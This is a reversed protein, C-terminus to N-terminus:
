PSKKHLDRPFPPLTKHAPDIARRARAGGKGLNIRNTLKLSVKSATEIKSM